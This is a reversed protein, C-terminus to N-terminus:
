GSNAHRRKDIQSMWCGLLGQLASSACARLDYCYYFLKVCNYERITRMSPTLLQLSYTGLWASAQLKLLHMNWQM